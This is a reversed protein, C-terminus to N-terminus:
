KIAYGVRFIIAQTRPVQEYSMFDWLLQMKTKKFFKTKLPISKSIGILGSVQWASYNKLQAISNFDDKYNMEYGGSVWFNGKIKWDFFSRLGAGQQTLRIANWGRGFGIKYSAGIGIVSKDNLKYGLSLGIDSTVPFYANAGQSQVNTGYELRQKLTKTKQGNPKFGEPLIDESSGGGKKLIKDKLQTLQSQASQMNQQFQEMANPGGAAIQQQILTNVQARTQLGALNAMTSPDATEGPMRFMSALLSNKKLFSNFAPIKQLAKLALAEIKKPDSFTEKYNMLAQAYYYQDKNMKKIFKNKGAVQMLQQVLQQKREKIFAEVAESNKLETAILNMSSQAAHLKSSDAVTKFKDLYKLSTTLQDRYEDYRGKANEIQLKGQQYKQLLVSFTITNAGFLRAATAPSTKELIAKIKNEWKSLRVLTKETRSSVQEYYKTAKSSVTTYFKEPIIRTTLTSTDAQIKVPSQAILQAVPIAIVLLLLFVAKVKM